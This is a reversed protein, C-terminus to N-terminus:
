NLEDGSALCGKLKEFVEPSDLKFVLFFRNDECSPEAHALLELWLAQSPTLTDRGQAWQTYVDRSQYFLEQLEASSENKTCDFTVTVTTVGSTEQATLQITRVDDALRSLAPAFARARSEEPRAALNDALLRLAPQQMGVLLFQSDSRTLAGALEKSQPFKGKVSELPGENASLVFLSKGRDNPLPSVWDLFLTRRPNQSGASVFGRPLSPRASDEAFGSQELAAATLQLISDPLFDTVFILSPSGPSLAGNEDLLLNGWLGQLNFFFLNMPEQFSPSSHFVKTLVDALPSSPDSLWRSNLRTLHRTFFLSWQPSNLIKEALQTHVLKNPSVFFSVSAAIPANQAAAAPTEASPVQEQGLVPAFLPLVTLMALALPIVTVREIPRVM